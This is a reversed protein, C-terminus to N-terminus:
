KYCNGEVNEIGLSPSKLPLPIIVSIITGNDSEFTAKGGMESARSSINRLGHGGSFDTNAHNSSENLGSGNDHITIEFLNASVNLQVDVKNAQAHKVINVMAEKIIRQVNLRLVSNPLEAEVDVLEFLSFDISHPELINTGYQRLDAIFSPWDASSNDLSKMFGRIETVSERSLGSITDLTKKVQPNEVQRQAVDALLSINTAMGGLGDHLDQVMLERERATSELQKSYIDLRQYMDNFRMGLISAMVLVQILEGWHGYTRGETILGLALSVDHIIFLTLIGFGTLFLGADRQGRIFQRGVQHVTLVIAVIFLVRALNLGAYVLSSSGWIWYLIISVSMILLYSLRVYSLSNKYGTGFLKEVYLVFTPVMGFMGLFWAYFWFTPNPLVLEKVYTHCLIWIAASLANAGFALYAVTEKRRPSFGLAVLGVVALLLGIVVRDADRRIMSEVLESRSGILVDRSIGIKTYDSEIRLLLTKGAFQEPLNILHWPHGRANDHGEFSYILEDDLFVNLYMYLPPIFLTSERTNLTPLITKLWLVPKKSTQPLNQPKDIKQWDLNKQEPHLASPASDTIQALDDRAYLWQHLQTPSDNSIASSPFCVSLLLVFLLAQSLLPRSLDPKFPKLLSSGMYKKACKM